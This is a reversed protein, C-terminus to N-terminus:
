NAHSISRREPTNTKQLIVQGRLYLIKMLQRKNKLFFNIAVAPNDNKNKYNKWLYDDLILLGGIKLIDFSKLVDIIVDDSYHSGDVYIIDYKADNASILFEHSSMKKKTLRDHYKRVNYDFNDEISSGLRSSHEDSGQWTDVCTVTCNPFEELMFLASLGEFSGIELYNIEDKQSLGAKDLMHRWIPINGSFWDYSTHSKEMIKHFEKQRELYLSKAKNQNPKSKLYDVIIKIDGNSRLLYYINKFDNAM